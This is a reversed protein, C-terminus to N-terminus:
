QEKEKQETKDLKSLNSDEKKSIILKSIEALTKDKLNKDEIKTILVNAFFGNNIDILKDYFKFSTKLTGVYMRIFLAGIFNILVGSIAGTIVPLNDTNNNKFMVIPLIIICFGILILFFGLPFLLRFHGINIDNYRKIENQQNKFQVESRLNYDKDSINLMDLEINIELIRNEKNKISTSLFDFNGLLMILYVFSLLFFISALFFYSSIYLLISFAFFILCCSYNNKRKNKLSELELKINEKESILNEKQEKTNNYFDKKNFKTFRRFFYEFEEDLNM